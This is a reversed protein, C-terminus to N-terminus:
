LSIFTKKRVNDNLEDSQNLINYVKLSAPPPPDYCPRVRARVSAVKCRLSVVSESDPTEYLGTHVWLFRSSVGTHYKQQASRLMINPRQARQIDAYKYVCIDHYFCGFNVNGAQGSPAGFRPISWGKKKKVGWVTNSTINCVMALM